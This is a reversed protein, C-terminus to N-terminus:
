RRAPNGGQPLARALQAAEQLGRCLGRPRGGRAAQVGEERGATAVDPRVHQAAAPRRHPPVDPRHCAGRRLARLRLQGAPRPRGAPQVRTFLQPLYCPQRRAARRVTRRLAPVRLPVVAQPGPLREGLFDVIFVAPEPRRLRPMLHDQDLLHLARRRCCGGLDLHVAAAAGAPGAAGAEQLGRGPSDPEVPRLAERVLFYAVPNIDSGVVRCGLKLAETVTTGSGMFPDLVVAGGFDNERYYDRWTDSSEDLLGGLVIARFVSGLRTAWWKHVHSLPRYIEKRWSELAAM